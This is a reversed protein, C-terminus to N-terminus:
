LFYQPTTKAEAVVVGVDGKEVVIEGPAVIGRKAVVFKKPSNTM